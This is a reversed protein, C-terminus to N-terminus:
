RNEDEQIQYRDYADVIKQVLPHRVVDDSQFHHFHIGRVQNLIREVEVLGSKQHRALDIQTM